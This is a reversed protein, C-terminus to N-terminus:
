MPKHVWIATKYAKDDLVRRLSGLGLVGSELAVDRLGANYFRKAIFEMYWFNEKHKQQIEQGKSYITHVWGYNIQNWNQIQNAYSPM